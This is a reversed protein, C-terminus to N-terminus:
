SYVHGCKTCFCHKWGQSSKFFRSTWLKKAEIWDTLAPQCLSDWMLTDKRWSVSISQRSHELHQTNYLLFNLEERKPALLRISFVSTCSIVTSDSLHKCSAPPGWPLLEEHWPKQTLGAQIKGSFDHQKNVACLIWLLSKYRLELSSIKLFHM